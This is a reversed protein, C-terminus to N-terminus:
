SKEKPRKSCMQGQPYKAHEPCYDTSNVTVGKPSCMFVPGSVETTHELCLPKDCTKPDDPDICNDEEIWLWDCLRLAPRLCWACTEEHTRGTAYRALEIIQRLQDGSVTVGSDLNALQEIEDLEHNTM